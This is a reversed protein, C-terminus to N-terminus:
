EHLFTGLGYHNVVAAAHDFCAKRTVVRRFSNERGDDAPWLMRADHNTHVLFVSVHTIFCLAFTANQFEFVGDLMSDDCIPVVHLLYPVVREVILKAHCGLLVWYKQCFRREVRFCVAFFIVCIKNSVKLTGAMYTEM